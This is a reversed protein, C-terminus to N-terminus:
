SFITVNQHIQTNRPLKPIRKPATGPPFFFCFQIFKTDEKSRDQVTRLLGRFANLIEKREKELDINPFKETSM